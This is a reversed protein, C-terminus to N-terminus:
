EKPLVWTVRRSSTSSIPSGSQDAAPTYRGRRTILACAAQDLAPSGSSSTVHCNEVRGATNITWAIGTTGHEENRIASPPYDDNTIWDAPNGKAGAAKSIVPAPPPPPAVPAQPTIVPPPAVRVTQIPPAMITPTQVIPPPAVMPPPEVKQQPPPPPPKQEPPPPEDKVDIVKLDEATKKIVKYALGTVLAYGLLLHLLAVLALSVIKRTSIAQPDAYSM